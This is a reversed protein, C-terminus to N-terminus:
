PLLPLPPLADSRSTVRYDDLLYQIVAKEETAHCTNYSHFASTSSRVVAEHITEGGITAFRARWTKEGARECDLHRLEDLGDIRAERRIFFEAAQVPYSYCARGRYKELVIRRAEYEEVIHRGADETVHAYFLGHPFCILNAAFRDGGVHSSQWVSSNGSKLSKYLPYGFKACCKDRRGHTCVLYLPRESVSAAATIARGAAVSAIDIDLLQEYLDVKLQVISPESERCRVIFLSLEGGSARGQKIFLLRSKPITKVARNLYAKVAASLSSDHFAKPGWSYPYQVLLWVDGISATGFTKEAHGRSLESCYFFQQSMRAQSFFQEPEDGRRSM